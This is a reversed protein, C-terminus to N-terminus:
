GSLFPGIARAAREVDADDNWLHVSFRINEGRVAARVRADALAQRVREPDRVPVCVLSSGTPQRGVSGALRAALALPAALAGARTWEALLRTSETTAVWPLWALSVDFRAASEALALPGGFFTTWPDAAGRWSAWTPELRDRADARVYLFACGRAGLLHKYAHCVLVDIDAIHQAVPVFPTGHTSDIVVRAGVARSRACIGALDAVRGTQMQVLSSVVLTTTDDIAAPVEGFPVQRITVGRQAAVLLPYLDSVHEDEPVVVVDEATLTRAVLGTGPSVAPILAIDAAEAGILAAFHGRAADSPRDWDEIWRATGTRWGELADAMARVSSAPPLGYTAADLYALGPAPAFQSRIDRDLTPSPPTAFPGRRPDGSTFAGARVTAVPESSAPDTAAPWIALNAMDGLEISGGADLATVRCGRLDIVTSDGRSIARVADDSGLAIIRDAAWAIASAPADAQRAPRAIVGGIAIVYEHTM